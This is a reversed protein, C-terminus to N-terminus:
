DDLQGRLIVPLNNLIIHSWNEFDDRRDSIEQISEFKSNMLFGREGIKYKEDLLNVLYVLGLHQKSVDRSDDYLYGRPVVEPVSSLILEESLERLIYSCDSLSDEEFLDLTLQAFDDISVHGGLMISYEGHLRQEPLRASRMHTLFKGEHHIVFVSVLQVVSFDEEAARRGMSFALSGLKSRSVGIQFYGPMPILKSLENLPIVAISEDMKNKVFRTAIYEESGYKRLTFLGQFARMFRSGDGNKLIDTALKSKMTQWPTQGDSKLLGRQLAITTIERASLPCKGEELIMEALDLFSKNIEVM